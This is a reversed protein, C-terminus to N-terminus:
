LKPQELENMSTSRYENSLLRYVRVYAFSTVILRCQALGWNSGPLKGLAHAELDAPTITGTDRTTIYGAIIGQVEHILTLDPIQVTNYLKGIDEVAFAVAISVTLTKGDRTTMTQGTDSV